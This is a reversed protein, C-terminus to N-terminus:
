GRRRWAVLGILAGLLWTGHSVPTERRTTACGCDDGEAGVLSSPAVVDAMDAGTGNTDAAVGMDEGMVMDPTPAMMDAPEPEMVMPEMVSPEMTDMTMDPMEMTDPEPNDVPTVPDTTSTVRIADFALRTGNLNTFPEGTNDDLRLWQEGDSAFAFVGVEVWGNVGEQDVVVSNEVGDHFVRYRAQRSMEGLDTLHVEIRYNGATDANLLWRGYCQPEPTDITYTYFFIDTSARIPVTGATV